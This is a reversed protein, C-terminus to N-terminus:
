SVGRKLATEPVSIPCFGDSSIKKPRHGKSARSRAAEALGQAQELTAIRKWEDTSPAHDTYRYTIRFRNPTRFEANGARGRETVEALGLMELERVAPAISHRHIGFRVFDDFTVPLRGNETGGHSAFEIELRDLVRRASLSLVRFAPSAIMEIPRAAYQGAMKTRRKTGAPKATGGSM